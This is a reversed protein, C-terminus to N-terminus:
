ILSNSIKVIKKELIRKLTIGKYAYIGLDGACDRGKLNGECGYSKEGIDDRGKLNFERGYNTRRTTGYWLTGKVGMAETGWATKECEHSRNGM